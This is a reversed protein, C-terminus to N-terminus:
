KDAQSNISQSLLQLVSEMGKPLSDNVAHIYIDMTYEVSYRSDRASTSDKKASYGASFSAEVSAPGWGYKGTVNGKVDTESQNQSTDKSSSEASINAKFQITMDDIRIYPIPVITLLPVELTAKKFTVEKSTADVSKQMYSFNIMQVDATPNGDEDLKFAVSKIFEVSSRAAKAQAEIAAVLPGGILNGFPLAGLQQTAEDQIIAM